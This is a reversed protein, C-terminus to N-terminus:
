VVSPFLYKMCLAVTLSSSYRYYSSVFYVKLCCINISVFLSMKYNGLIRCLPIPSYSSLSAWFNHHKSTGTASTWPSHCAKTHAPGLLTLTRPRNTPSSPIKEPEKRWLYWMEFYLKQQPREIIGRHFHNWSWTSEWFM